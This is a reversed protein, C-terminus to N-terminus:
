ADAAHVHAHAHTHMRAHMCVHMCAYMRAHTHRSNCRTEKGGTDTHTHLGQGQGGLAQIPNYAHMRMHTSPETHIHIPQVAAAPHQYTHKPQQTTNDGVSKAKSGTVWIPRRQALYGPLCSAQDTHKTQTRQTQPQLQRRRCVQKEGPQPPAYAKRMHRSCSAHICTCQRDSRQSTATGKGKNRQREQEGTLTQHM